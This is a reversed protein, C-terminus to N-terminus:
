LLQIMQSIFGEKDNGFRIYYMGKPLAAVDIDLSSTTRNAEITQHYVEKGVMDLIVLDGANKSPPLVVNVVDVGPNPSVKIRGQEASKKNLVIPDFVENAGNFDYQTLRYYVNGDEMNPDIIMYNLIETSNGAADITNLHVYNKGDLSKEIIFYESNIESATQWKIHADNGVVEGTFSILEVPVPPLITATAECGKDDTATVYINKDGSIAWYCPNYTHMQPSSGTTTSGDPFEWTFSSLSNSNYDTASAAYTFEFQHCYNKGTSDISVLNASVNPQMYSNVVHNIVSDRCGFVDTIRVAVTHAATGTFTHTATSGTAETNFTGNYSFDWEYSAVDDYSTNISNNETSASADFSAAVGSCVETPGSFSLVPPDNIFVFRNVLFEDKFASGFTAGAHSAAYTLYIGGCGSTGGGINCVDVLKNVNIAFEFFNRNTAGCTSDGVYGTFTKSQSSWTGSSYTYVDTNSIASGSSISFFMATEAGGVSMDGTSTDCDTNFYLSFSANGTTTSKRTFAFQITQQYIDFWLRQYDGSAPVGSPDGYDISATSDPWEPNGSGDCNHGDITIQSYTLNVVSTALILFTLASLRLFGKLNKNNKM